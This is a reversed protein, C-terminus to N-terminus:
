NEHPGRHGRSYAQPIPSLRIVFHCVNQTKLLGRARKHRSVMKKKKKTERDRQARCVTTFFFFFNFLVIIGNCIVNIRQLNCQCAATAPLRAVASGAATGEVLARDADRGSSVALAAVTARAVAVRRVVGSQNVEDRGRVRSPLLNGLERPQALREHM